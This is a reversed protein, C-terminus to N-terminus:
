LTLVLLINRVGIGICSVLFLNIRFNKNKKLEQQKLLSNLKEM